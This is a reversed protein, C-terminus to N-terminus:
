RSRPGEALAGTWDPRLSHLRCAADAAEIAVAGAHGPAPDLRHLSWRGAAHRDGDIALLAAPRPPVAVAFRGLAMSLGLGLAKVFAEKCTWCAFFAETLSRAPLAALAAIEQPAFHGRAIRLADPLPRVAEVDVGIRAAPSLAILAFGGSHSLNFDLRGRWPHALTPKGSADAQFALSSPAAGLVGALTLRLAAHSAIFRDRDEPRLFRAARVREEADLLALCRERGGDDLALGARWVTPGPAPGPEAISWDAANM